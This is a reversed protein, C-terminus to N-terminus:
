GFIKETWAMPGTDDSGLQEELKFAAECMQSTSGDLALARLSPWPQMSVAERLSAVGFTSRIDNKLLATKRSDLNRHVQEYAKAPSSWNRCMSDIPGVLNYIMDLVLQKRIDSGPWASKAVEAGEDCSVKLSTGKVLCIEIASYFAAIHQWVAPHTVAVVAGDQRSTQMREALAAGHGTPPRSVARAEILVREPGHIRHVLGMKGATNILHADEAHQYHQVGGIKGYAWRSVAIGCGTVLIAWPCRAAQYGLFALRGSLDDIEAMNQEERNASWCRVGRLCLASRGEQYVGEARTFYDRPLMTDADTQHIWRSRVRGMDMLHALVEAGISRAEGVGGQVFRDTTRDIVLIPSADISKLLWLHEDDASTFVDSRERLDKMLRANGEAATWPSSVSRNVVIITLAAQDVSQLLRSVSETSEDYVPIVVAYESDIKAVLAEVAQVEQPAM